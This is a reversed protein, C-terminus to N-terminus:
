KPILLYNQSCKQINEKGAVKSTVTGNLLRGIQGNLKDSWGATCKRLFSLSGFLFLFKCHEDVHDSIDCDCDVLSQFSSLLVSFSGM